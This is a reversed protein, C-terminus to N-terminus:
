FHWSVLLVLYASILM